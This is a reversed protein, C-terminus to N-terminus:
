GLMSIEFELANIEDRWAKRQALLEQLNYPIEENLLSAEYCKTIKYDSENLLLKLNQIKYYKKMKEEEKIKVDEQYVISGNLFKAYYYNNIFYNFDSDEIDYEISIEEPISGYGEITNDERVLLYIKKM